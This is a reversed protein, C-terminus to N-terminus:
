DLIEYPEMTISELKDGLLILRGERRSNGTESFEFRYTRRFVRHGSQNRALGLEIGAVTDDLFQLDLESCTQRGVKRAIDLARLSNLWYWGLAGLFLLLLLSATDM